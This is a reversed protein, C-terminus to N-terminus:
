EALPKGQMDLNELRKGGGWGEGGPSQQREKKKRKRNSKGKECVIKEIEEVRQTLWLPLFMVVIASTSINIGDKSLEINTM